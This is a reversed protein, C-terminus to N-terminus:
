NGSLLKLLELVTIESFGPCNPPDTKPLATRATNERRIPPSKGSRFCVFRVVTFSMLDIRRSVCSPKDTRAIEPCGPVGVVAVGARMGRQRISCRRGKGNVEGCGAM